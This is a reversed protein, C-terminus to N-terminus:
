SIGHAAKFLNFTLHAQGQHHGEHIALHVLWLRLPRVPLNPPGALDRDLQEKSFKSVANFFIERQKALTARIESIAPADDTPTSGFGYRSVFASAENGLVRM